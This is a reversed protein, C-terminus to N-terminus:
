MENVTARIFHLSPHKYWDCWEVHEVPPEPLSAFSTLAFEGAFSWRQRLSRGSCEQWERRRSVHVAGRGDHDHGRISVQYDSVEEEGTDRRTDDGTDTQRVKGVGSSASQSSRTLFDAFTTRVLISFSLQYFRKLLFQCDYEVALHRSLFMTSRKRSRLLYTLLGDDFDTADAVPKPTMNLLDAVFNQHVM